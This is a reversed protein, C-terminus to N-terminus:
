GCLSRPVATAAASSPRIAPASRTSPQRNPLPSRVPLTSRTVRARLICVLRRDAAKSKESMLATARVKSCQVWSGIWGRWGYTPSRTKVAKEPEWWSAILFPKRSLLRILCPGAGWERDVRSINTAAIVRHDADIALGAFAADRIQHFSLVADDHRATKLDLKRTDDLPVCICVATFDRRTINPRQKGLGIEVRSVRYTVAFVMEVLM